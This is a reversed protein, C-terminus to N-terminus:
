LGGHMTILLINTQAINELTVCFPPSKLLFRNRMLPRSGCDIRGGRSVGHALTASGRQPM